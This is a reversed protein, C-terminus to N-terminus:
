TVKEKKSKKEKLNKIIKELKKWEVVVRKKIKTNLNVEWEKFIALYDLLLKWMNIM